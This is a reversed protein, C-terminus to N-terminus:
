IFGTLGKGMVIIGEGHDTPNYLGIMRCGHLFEGPEPGPEGSIHRIFHDRKKFVYGHGQRLRVWVGMKDNRVLHNDKVIDLLGHGTQADTIQLIFGIGTGSIVLRVVNPSFNHPLKAVEDYSSLLASNWEIDLTKPEPGVSLMAHRYDGFFVTVSATGSGNEDPATSLVVTASTGRGLAFRIEGGAPLLFMRQAGPNVERRVSEPVRQLAVGQGYPTIEAVNHLEVNEYIM